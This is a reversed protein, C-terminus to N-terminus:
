LTLLRSVIADRALEADVATAVEMVAGMESQSDVEITRLVGDQITPVIRLKEFTLASEDVLSLM